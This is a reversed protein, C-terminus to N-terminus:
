WSVEFRMGIVLADDIAHSASPNWVWQVDPQLALHENIRASYTLEWTTERPAAREGTADLYQRYPKAAGGSAVAVGFRDFPRSDLLGEIVIGAGLYDRLANFREEARGYRLFWAANRSGLVFAHEVGAYWGDNGDGSGIEFAHEFDATYRWYGAWARLSQSVPVDLEAVLLAGDDSGLDVRNSGPDDPDGPTGDLVAFRVTGRKTEVATRVSLSSIPFISPGNRGTQGFEAGIGHSSNLFLGGTENVDFESNLDYLGARVSWRENGVEYWAEFVRFGEPADINSTVQLDGVLEDAFTTANNYLGHIFLTGSGGWAEAVDVELTLGLNDLYRAGTDMGGSVNAVIDATYAAEFRYADAAAVAPCLLCSLVIPATATASTPM